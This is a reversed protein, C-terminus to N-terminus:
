KMRVRQRQGYGDDGGGDSVGSDGGHDEGDDYDLADVDDYHDLQATSIGAKIDLRIQKSINSEEANRVTNDETTAEVRSERELESKELWKALLSRKM